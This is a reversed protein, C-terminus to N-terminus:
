PNREYLWCVHYTGGFPPVFIKRAAVFNILNFMSQFIRYDSVKAFAQKLRYCIERKQVDLKLWANYREMPM